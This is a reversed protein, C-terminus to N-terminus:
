KLLPIHNLSAIAHMYSGHCIKTKFSKKLFFLSLQFLFSFCKLEFHCLCWLSPLLLYFFLTAFGSDNQMTHMLTHIHTTSLTAKNQFSNKLLLMTLQPLWIFDCSSKPLPQSLTEVTFPVLCSSSCSLFILFKFVRADSIDTKLSKPCFCDSASHACSPQRKMRMVKQM